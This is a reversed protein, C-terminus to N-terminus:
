LKSTNKNKDIYMYIYIYIYIYIYVLKRHNCIKMDENKFVFSKETTIPTNM